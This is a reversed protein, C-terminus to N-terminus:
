ARVWSYTDMIARSLFQPRPRYQRSPLKPLGLGLCDSVFCDTESPVAARSAGVEIVPRRSRTALELLRPLERLSCGDFLVAAGDSFRSFFGAVTRSEPPGAALERFISPASASFLVERDHVLKEGSELYKAPSRLSDFRDSTWVEDTLWQVVGPLRPGPVTWADLSSRDLITM